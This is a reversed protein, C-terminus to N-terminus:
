HGAPWGAGIAGVTVEDPGSAMGQIQQHSDANVVRVMQGLAGDDQATGLASLQLGPRLYLLRVPRGRRVMLPPGLDRATLVRGPLLRKRAEAGLLEQPDTLSEPQLRGARVTIWELDAAGVVEGETLPRALVPLEILAHARGHVPLQFRTQGDIQGVLVAEFRGSGDDHRLGEVTLETSAASQNALPLHPREVIVRFREGFGHAQLAEGVLQRAIAETLPERAALSAALSPHSASLLLLVIPFILRLM